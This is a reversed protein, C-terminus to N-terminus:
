LVKKIYDETLQLHLLKNDVDKPTVLDLRKSFKVGLVELLFGVAESCILGRKGDLLIRFEIGFVKSFFIGFINYISYKIKLMYNIRQMIKVYDEPSVKITYARMTENHESWHEFTSIHNYGHSSESILFEGTIADRFMLATHSYNTKLFKTIAWSFLNFKKPYSLIITVLFKNKM